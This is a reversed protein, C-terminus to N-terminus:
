DELWIGKAVEWATKSDLYYDNEIMYKENNHWWCIDWLNAWLWIARLYRKM